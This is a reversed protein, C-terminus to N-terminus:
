KLMGHAMKAGMPHCHIRNAKQLAAYQRTGSWRYFGTATPM